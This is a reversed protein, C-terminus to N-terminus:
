SNGFFIYITNKSCFFVFGISFISKTLFKDNNKMIGSELYFANKLYLYLVCIKYIYSILCLFFLRHLLM